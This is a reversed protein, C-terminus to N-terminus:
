ITQIMKEVSNVTFTKGLVPPKGNVRKIDKPSPEDEDKAPPLEKVPSVIAVKTEREQFNSVHNGNIYKDFKELSEKKPKVIWDPPTQTERDKKACKPSLQSQAEKLHNM